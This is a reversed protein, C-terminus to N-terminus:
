VIASNKQLAGMNAAHIRVRFVSHIRLNTKKRQNSLPFNAANLQLACGAEGTDCPTRNV